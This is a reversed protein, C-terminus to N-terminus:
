LLKAAVAEGTGEGVVSELKLVSTSSFLIKPDQKM